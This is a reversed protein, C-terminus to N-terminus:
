LKGLLVTAAENASKAEALAAKTAAEATEARTQADKLAAEHKDKNAVFADKEGLRRSLEQWMLPFQVVDHTLWSHLTADTVEKLMDRDKPIVVGRLWKMRLAM